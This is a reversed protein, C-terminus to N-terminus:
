ATVESPSECWYTVGAAILYCRQQDESREIHLDGHFAMRELTDQDVHVSMRATMPDGRCGPPQAGDSLDQM